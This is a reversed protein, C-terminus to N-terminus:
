LRHAARADSIDFSIGIHLKRRVTRLGACRIGAAHYCCDYCAAANGARCNRRDYHCYNNYYNNDNNYYHDYNYYHHDDDTNHCDGCANDAGHHGDANHYCHVVCKRSGHKRSHYRSERMFDDYSGGFGCIHCNNDKKYTDNLQRDEGLDPTINM